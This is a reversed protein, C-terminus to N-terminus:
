PNLGYVKINNGFYHTTLATGSLVRGGVPAIIFDLEHVEELLEMAATTQGIIINDNDFPHVETYDFKEILEAVTREIAEM